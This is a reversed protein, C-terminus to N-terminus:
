QIPGDPAELLTALETELERIRERKTQIRRTQNSNRFYIILLGVVTFFGILAAWNLAAIVAPTNAFDSGLADLVPTVFTKFIVSIAWAIIAMGAFVVITTTFPRGFRGMREEIVRVLGPLLEENM